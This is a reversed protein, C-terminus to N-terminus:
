LRTAQKMRATREDREREMKDRWYFGGAVLGLITFYIATAIFLERNEQPTFVRPPPETEM